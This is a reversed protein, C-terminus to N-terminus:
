EEENIKTSTILVFCGVIWRSDKRRTAFAQEVTLEEVICFVNGVRPAFFELSREGRGFIGILSPLLELARIGFQEPGEWGFRWEFGTHGPPDFLVTIPNFFNEELALGVM